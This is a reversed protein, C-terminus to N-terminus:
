QYLKLIATGFIWDLGAILATLLVVAVSKVLASVARIRAHSPRWSLQVALPLVILFPAFAQLFHQLDQRSLAQPFVGIGGITFAMLVLAERRDEIRGGRLLMLAIIAAYGYGAVVTGYLIWTGGSVTM